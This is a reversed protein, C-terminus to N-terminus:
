LLSSFYKKFFTLCYPNWVQFHIWYVWVQLLWKWSDTLLGTCWTDWGCNWYVFTLTPLSWQKTDTSSSFVFLLWTLPCSTSSYKILSPQLKIMATQASGTETAINIPHSLSDMTVGGSLVPVDQL